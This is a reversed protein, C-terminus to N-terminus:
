LPAGTECRQGFIKCFTQLKLTKFCTSEMQMLKSLSQNFVQGSMCFRTNRTLLSIQRLESLKDFIVGRIFILFQCLQPDLNSKSRHKKLTM